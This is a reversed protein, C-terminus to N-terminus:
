RSGSLIERVVEQVVRGDAQGKLLPMVRKMVEGLQAPGVIELDGVIARVREAIEDRSLQRPLYGELIALEQREHELAAGRGELGALEAVTERRRKAEQALVALLEEDSLPRNREVEVVRLNSLTLRLAAKRREDGERMASTLDAQLQDKLTM